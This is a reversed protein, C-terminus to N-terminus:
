GYVVRGLLYVVIGLSFSIMWLSAAVRGVKAHATERLGRVDHSVALGLTYYLLPICVIALGVHGILVPLYVFRFIEDPGAFSAAGGTVVLRYLYLTLFTVFLGVASGMARRHTRVRGRRIARWGTAITVIAVASILVNVTPIAALVAEPATPLVSSPVYGGAAAFVIALSVASLVGAVLPVRDPSLPAM